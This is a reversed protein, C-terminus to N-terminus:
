VIRDNVESKTTNKQKGRPLDIISFDYENQSLTHTEIEEFGTSELDLNKETGQLETINVGIGFIVQHDDIQNYIVRKSLSHYQGKVSQFDTYLLFM